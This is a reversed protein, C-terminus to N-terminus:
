SLVYGIFVLYATLGFLGLAGLVLTTWRPPFGRRIREMQWLQAIALPLAILSGYAVRPPLGNFYGVIFSFVAFLIAFDHIRMGTQWGVRIMLTRKELKQDSAYDPLEFALIMAFHLAVLPTSTMILLRHLEGTQLSFAIAPLFGAVILSTSLEGYGSTLLRIPPASYFFAGLFSIIILVWTVIPVWGQILLLATISGALGMCILAAYLAVERPLGDPGLAGSGGTFPTRSENTIDGPYDFYENLYHAMLQVFTILLQGALYQLADIPTGLFSAIAAGLAYLLVGGLLFIPRTLRIFLRVQHRTIRM